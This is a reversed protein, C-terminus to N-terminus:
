KTAEKYEQIKKWTLNSANKKVANIKIIAKYDAEKLIGRKKKRRLKTLENFITKKLQLEKTNEVEQKSDVM